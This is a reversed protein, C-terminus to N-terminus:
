HRLLLDHGIQLDWHDPVSDLTQVCSIVFFVCNSRDSHNCKCSYTPLEIPVRYQSQWQMDKFSSFGNSSASHNSKGKSPLEIPIVVTITKAKKFSTRNNKSVFFRLQVHISHDCKDSTHEPLIIPFIVTIANAQVSTKSNICFQESKCYIKSWFLHNIKTVL